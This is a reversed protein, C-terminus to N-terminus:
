GNSLKFWITTVVAVALGLYGFWVYFVVPNPVARTVVTEHKLAISAEGRARQEPTTTENAAHYVSAEVTKVEFCRYAVLSVISHVVTLVALAAFFGKWDTPAM